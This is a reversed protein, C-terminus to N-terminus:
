LRKYMVVNENMRNKNMNNRNNGNNEKQEPVNMTNQTYHLKEYYKILATVSPQLVIYNYGNARLYQEVYSILQKGYGKSLVYEGNQRSYYPLRSNKSTNIYNNNLSTFTSGINSRRTYISRKTIEVYALYAVEQINMGKKIIFDRIDKPIKTNLFVEATAYKRKTRTNMTKNKLFNIHNNNPSRMLVFSLANEKEELIINRNNM